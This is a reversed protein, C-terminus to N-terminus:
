IVEKNKNNINKLVRRHKLNANILNQKNTNENDYKVKISEHVQHKPTNRDRWITLVMGMNSVLINLDFYRIIYDKSKYIHSVKGMVVARNIKYRTRVIGEKKKSLSNWQGIAVGSIRM